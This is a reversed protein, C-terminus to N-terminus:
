RERGEEPKPKPGNIRKGRSFVYAALIASLAGVPPALEALLAPPLPSALVLPDGAALRGALWGLLGVGAWLLPPKRLGAIFPASGLALLPISLALGIQVLPRSGQAAAQVAVMNQLALPADMALCALLVASLSRRPAKPPAVEGRTTLALAAWILLAAGALGAGALGAYALLAYAFVIRLLIFLAAGLLVGPRRLAHPLARTALALMVANDGSLLFDLWVIEILGALSPSLDM